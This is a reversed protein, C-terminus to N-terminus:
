VVGAVQIGAVFRQMRCKVGTYKIEQEPTKAFLGLRLVELVMPDNICRLRMRKRAPTTFVVHASDIASLKIYKELQKESPSALCLGIM